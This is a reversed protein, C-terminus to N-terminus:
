IKLHNEHRQDVSLHIRGDGCIGFFPFASKADSRLSIRSFLGFFRDIRHNSFDVLEDAFINVTVLVRREIFDHNM